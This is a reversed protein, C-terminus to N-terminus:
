AAKIGYLTMTSGAPWTLTNITLSISTIASTSRWLGIAHIVATSAASARTLWSKQKSTGSYNLINVINTTYGTGLTGAYGATANTIAAGGYSSGTAYIYTRSYNSGSDSNFKMDIDNNTYVGNTVVVLDNYTQPISTFTYTTTSGDATYTQIPVYTAASTSSSTVGM